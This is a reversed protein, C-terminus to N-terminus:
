KDNAASDDTTVDPPSIQEDASAPQIFSSQTLSQDNSKDQATAATTNQELQSGDGM